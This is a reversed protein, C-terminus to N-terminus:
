YSLYEGNSAIVKQYFYFSDKRYRNMTGKGFEDLDVYIFGYRKSMESSGCSVIDFPGWWTYGILDVGDQIAEKLRTGIQPRCASATYIKKIWSSEM